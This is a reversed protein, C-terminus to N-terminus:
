IVLFKCSGALATLSAETGKRVQVIRKWGSILTILNLGFIRQVACVFVSEMESNAFYRPLELGRGLGGHFLQKRSKLMSILFRAGSLLQM